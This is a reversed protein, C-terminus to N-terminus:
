RSWDGCAACKVFSKRYRHAPNPIAIVVLGLTELRRLAMAVMNRNAKYNLKGAATMIDIPTMGREFTDNGNSEPLMDWVIKWFPFENRAGQLANTEVDFDIEDIGAVLQKREANGDVLANCEGNHTNKIAALAVNMMPSLISLRAGIDIPIKDLFVVKKKLSEPM